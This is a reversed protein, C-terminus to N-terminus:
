SVGLALAIATEVREIPQSGEIEVLLGRQRYLDILPQTDRHYLELRRAIAEPKDDDRQILESGCKDCHRPDKKPPNLTEHYNEECGLNSCVWRGSLRKLAEDDDLKLYIAHTIARGREAFLKDLVVQQELTRPYGDLILGGAVDEETLRGAMLQNVLADPVRDGKEIYKVIADGLGTKRAIEDRFLHGVSVTPVGLKEALREAQTGKGSGQAGLMLINHM